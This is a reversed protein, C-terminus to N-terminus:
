LPLTLRPPMFSLRLILFPFSMILYKSESEKKKQVLGILKIIKVKSDIDSVDLFQAEVPFVCGDFVTACRPCLFARGLAGEATIAARHEPQPVVM